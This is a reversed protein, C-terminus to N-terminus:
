YELEKSQQCKSKNNYDHSLISEEFLKASRGKCSFEVVSAIMM